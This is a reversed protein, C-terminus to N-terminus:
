VSGHPTRREPDAPVLRKVLISARSRKAGWELDTKGMPRYGRAQWFGLACGEYGSVVDIRVAESGEERMREEFLRCCAAGLGQGQRAKDLMLLSLYATRGPRYDMVGAVRGDDAELVCCLFGASKADAHDQLLFAVDVSTRGLHATLFAPNSNYIEVIRATDQECAPRLLLGSM